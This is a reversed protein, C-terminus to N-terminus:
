TRRAEAWLLLGAETFGVPREFPAPMWHSREPEQQWWLDYVAAHAYPHDCDSLYDVLTLSAEMDHQRTARILHRVLEVDPTM